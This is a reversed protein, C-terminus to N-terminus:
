HRLADMLGLIRYKLLASNRVGLALVGYYNDYNEYVKQAKMKLFVITMYEALFLFVRLPTNKNKRPQPDPLRVRNELNHAKRPLREELGRYVILM